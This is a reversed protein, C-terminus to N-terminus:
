KQQIEQPFLLPQDLEVEMTGGRNNLQQARAKALEKTSFIGAPELLDTEKKYSMVLFVKM